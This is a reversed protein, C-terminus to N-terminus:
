RNTRSIFMFGNMDSVQTQPVNPPESVPIFDRRCGWCTAAKTFSRMSNALGAGRERTKFTKALGDVEIISM